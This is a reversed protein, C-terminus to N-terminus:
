VFISQEICYQVDKESVVDVAKCRLNNGVQIAWPCMDSVPYVPSAQATWFISVSALAHTM